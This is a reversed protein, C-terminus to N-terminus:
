KNPIMGSNCSIICVVEYFAQGLFVGGKTYPNHCRSHTGSPEVVLNNDFVWAKTM